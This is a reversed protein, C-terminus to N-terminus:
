KSIEGILNQTSTSLKQYTENQMLVNLISNTLNQQMVQDLINKIQRNVDTRMKEAFSSIHKEVEKAISAVFTKQAFDSELKDGVTKILYQERTMTESKSGWGGGITVDQAFLYNVCEKIKSELIEDCRKKIISEFESKVIKAVEKDVTAQITNRFAFIIRERMDDMNITINCNANETQRKEDMIIEGSEYYPCDVYGADSYECYPTGDDPCYGCFYKCKDCKTPIEEFDDDYFPM